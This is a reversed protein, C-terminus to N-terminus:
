CLGRPGEQEAIVAPPSADKGRAVAANSAAAVAAGGAEVATEHLGAIAEEAAANSEEALLNEVTELLLHFDNQDAVSCRDSFGFM